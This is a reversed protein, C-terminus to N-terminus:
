FDSYTTILHSKHCIDHARALHKNTIGTQLPPVPQPTHLFPYYHSERSLKNQESNSVGVHTPAHPAPPHLPPVPIGTRLTDSQYQIITLKTWEGAHM